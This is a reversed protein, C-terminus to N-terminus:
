AEPLCARSPLLGELAHKGSAYATMFPCSFRALSSSVTLIFGQKRARMSPLAARILRWPGLVDVNYIHLLDEETFSEGVGMFFSGANNIIADIGGREDVVRQIARQNSQTDAMELPLVTIGPISGLRRADGEHEGDINRMTAYVVHGRAALMQAGLSGFGSSTGTILITQPSTTKEM